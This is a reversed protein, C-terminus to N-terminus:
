IWQGNFIQHMNDANGRYLATWLGCNGSHTIVHKCRSINLIAAFFNVAQNERQELPLEFFVASDQKSISPTESFYFTDYPFVNLFADLFEKEDPQVLFKIGPNKAKVERAKEIFSEYSPVQMERAKDNGRYLVACTNSYDINYTMMMNYATNGVSDSPTFWDHLIISWDNFPLDRYPAFQISMCDYNMRMKPAKGVAVREVQGFFSPILNQGPYRQYLRYQNTRDVEDPFQGTTNTYIVIDM